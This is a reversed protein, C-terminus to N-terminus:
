GDVAGGFVAFSGWGEWRAFAEGGGGDGLRDEVHFVGDAAFDNEGRIFDGGGEGGGVGGFARFLEGVNRVGVDAVGVRDALLGERPGSLDEGEGVKGGRHSDVVLQRGLQKRGIGDLSSPTHLRHQTPTPRPSIRVALPRHPKPVINTPKNLPPITQLLPTTIRTQNKHSIPRTGRNIQNQSRQNRPIIAPNHNWYWLIGDVAGGDVSKVAFLNTVKEILFTSPVHIYGFQLSGQAFRLLIADDDITEHQNIRTIGSPLNQGSLRNLLHDFEAGFV